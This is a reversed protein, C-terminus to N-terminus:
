YEGIFYFNIIIINNKKNIIYLKNQNITIKYEEVIDPNSMLSNYYKSIADKEQDYFGWETHSYHGLARKIETYDNSSAAAYAFNSVLCLILLKKIM